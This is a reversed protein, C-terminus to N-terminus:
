CVLFDTPCPWELRLGKCMDQTKFSSVELILM